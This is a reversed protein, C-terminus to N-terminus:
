RRHLFVCIMSHVKSHKLILRSIDSIATQHGGDSVNFSIIKSVLLAAYTAAGIRFSHGSFKCNDYGLKDLVNRLLGIFADRSFPRFDFEDEIFLPSM